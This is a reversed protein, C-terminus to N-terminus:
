VHPELRCSVALQAVQATNPLSLTTSVLQALDDPALMPNPDEGFDATMDTAVFGPCLATVRVGDHWAAQKTAETLALVAHKTMAYGPAFTGPVRLGSLSAVNIVRGSGAARLHPLARQTLRLPGKVNVNMLTDFADDTLEDLGTLEVIGANNVLGDLRGFRGVTADIWADDTGIDLADYRHCLLREDADSADPALADRLADVDRAGASM